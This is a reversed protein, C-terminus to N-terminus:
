RARGHRRRDEDREFRAVGAAELRLAGPAKSAFIPFRARKRTSKAPATRGLERELAAGVLSRLSTGREVAAIKARKLLEDPLDFTTRM